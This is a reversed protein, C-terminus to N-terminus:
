HSFLYNLSITELEIEDPCLTSKNLSVGDIIGVSKRLDLFKSIELLRALINLRVLKCISCYHQKDEIREFIRELIHFLDVKLLRFNNLPFYDRIIEWNSVWNKFYNNNNMNDFLVPYIVCGRRMMLFGAVIDNIRGIDMVIVKKPPEIPLGGWNNRIIQSFIYAFEDRVEIYIKKNPNTLNVKLNLEKMNDLIEQGVVKAIELSNYDHKGSRKIRLAFSDHHQLIEKAAEITRESINKLNSSTRLAPSISYIGFVNKLINIADILDENNFFFFIRSSDKSLQYKHFSINNRNLVKKINNMLIKLMRIKVKQSKLWIEGYRILILNYQKLIQIKDMNLM